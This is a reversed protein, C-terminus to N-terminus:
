GAGDEDHDEDDHTAAEADAVTSSYGSSAERTCAAAATLLVVDVRASYPGMWSSVDIPASAGELHAHHARDGDRDERQEEDDPVRAGLLLRAAELQEARRDHAPARRQGGRQEHRGAGAEDRADARRQAQDGDPHRGGSRDSM